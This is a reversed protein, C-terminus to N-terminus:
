EMPLVPSFFYTGIVVAKSLQRVELRLALCPQGTLMPAGVEHKWPPMSYSPFWKPEACVIEADIGSLVDGNNVANCSVCQWVAGGAAAPTMLEAVSVVKAAFAAIARLVLWPAVPVGDAGRNWCSLRAAFGPSMRLQVVNGVVLMTDEGGQRFEEPQSQQEIRPLIDDMPDRSAEEAMRRATEADVMPMAQYAVDKPGTMVSFALCQENPGYLSFRLDKNKRHASQVLEISGMTPHLHSGVASTSMYTTNLIGLQRWFDKMPSVMMSAVHHRSPRPTECFEALSHLLVSQYLAPAAADTFSRRQFPYLRPEHLFHVSLAPGAVTQYPQAATVVGLPAALVVSGTSAAKSLIMQRKKKGRRVGGLISLMLYDHITLSHCISFASLAEVVEGCASENEFQERQQNTKSVSSVFTHLLLYHDDQQDQPLYRCNGLLM